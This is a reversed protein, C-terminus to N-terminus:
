KAKQCAYNVPWAPLPAVFNSAYPYDVMVMMSFASSLADILAQMDNPDKPENCLNFIEQIKFYYLTEERLYELMDFGAEITVPCSPMAQEYVATAIDYWAYPDVYGDFSLIPASAAYAGQVWQPYKMRMWSALMGGYSGGCVIVARDQL